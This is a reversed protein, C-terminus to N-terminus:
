YVISPPNIWDEKRKLYQEIMNIYIKDAKDSLIKFYSQIEEVDLKEVDTNAAIKLMSSLEFIEKEIDM